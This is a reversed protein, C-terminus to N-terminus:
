GLVIEHFSLSSMLWVEPNFVFFEIVWSVFMPKMNTDSRKGLLEWLPSKFLDMQINADCRLNGQTYPVQIKSEICYSLAVREEESLSVSQRDELVAPQKFVRLFVALFVHVSWVESM